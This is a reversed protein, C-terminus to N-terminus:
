LDTVVSVHLEENPMSSDSLPLEDMGCFDSFM